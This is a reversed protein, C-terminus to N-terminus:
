KLKELAELVQANTEEPSRSGDVVFLKGRERYFDVLPETEEHYVKLRTRVTEPDDDKRRTLEGGCEDCVNEKKPPKTVVHYTAGCGICTRRGAMRQEIMNDPVDLLIAATIEIGAKELAEAQGITRPVGDLIFGNECDKQSLREKVIGIIVEDPVLRGSSIYEQAKLGIPTGEKIAARLINGTSISPLGREKTLFEVQTGKGAGPAGLLILNM